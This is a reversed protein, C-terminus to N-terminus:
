TLTTVRLQIVSVWVLVGLEGVTPETVNVVGWTIALVELVTM